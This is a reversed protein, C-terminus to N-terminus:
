GYEYEDGQQHQQAEPEATIDCLYTRHHYGASRCQENCGDSQGDDVQLGTVAASRIFHQETGIYGPIGGEVDVIGYPHVADRYGHQQERGNDHKRTCESGPTQLRQGFFIEQPEGQQRHTHETEKDRGVQEGHEHEVLYREDRHVQQNAYPTRSALFVSGHFQRQHQHATGSEQKDTDETDVETAAGGGHVQQLYGLQVINGHLLLADPERKGEETEAHQASQEREMGPAGVTMCGCRGGDTHQMCAYQHLQAAVAAEADGHVQHGFGCLLQAPYEEYQRTDGYHVACEGSAHLGVQLVDIGVRGYRM